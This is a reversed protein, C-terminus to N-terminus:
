SDGDYLGGTVGPTLAPRTDAGLSRQKPNASLPSELVSLAGRGGCVSLRAM